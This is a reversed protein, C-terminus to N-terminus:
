GEFAPYREGLSSYYVFSSGCFFIWMTLLGGRGGAVACQSYDVFWFAICSADWFMLVEIRRYKSETSKVKTLM